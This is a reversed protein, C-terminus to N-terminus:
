NIIILLYYCCCSIKGTDSSWLKVRLSSNIKQILLSGAVIPHYTGTDWHLTSSTGNWALLGNKGAICYLFQYSAPFDYAYARTFVRTFMCFAHFFCLKAGQGQKWLISKLYIQFCPKERQPCIWLLWLSTLLTPLWSFPRTIWSCLFYPIPM